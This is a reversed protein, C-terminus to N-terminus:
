DRGIGAMLSAALREKIRGMRQRVNAFLGRNIEEIEESRAVQHRMVAAEDYCLEKYRAVASTLWIRTQAVQLPKLLFRFIQGHNILGILLNADSRDSAIITVLEPM